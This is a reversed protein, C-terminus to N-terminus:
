LDPVLAVAVAHADDVFELAIGDGVHDQVLQVLVGLKLRREGHVVDRQHLTTRFQQIELLHHSVVDLMAVFHHHTPRLVIQPLCLLSRVDQLAEDNGKVVNIFDDCQNTRALRRFFGSVAQHRLELEAFNLSPRNQVHTQLLECSEFSVLKTSLVVFQHRQDGIQLVDEVAHLTAHVDDLGLKEVDFLAKSVFTAGGNFVAAGVQANLVHNRIFLHHHGDTM